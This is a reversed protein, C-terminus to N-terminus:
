AKSEEAARKLAQLQYDWEQALRSLWAATDRLPAPQVSFLVERGVRRSAVLDADSLIQLHKLVGQRSISMRRAVEGANLGTAGALVELIERRTGDALCTLVADVAAM